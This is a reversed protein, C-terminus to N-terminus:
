LSRQLHQLLACMCQRQRTILLQQQQQSRRRAATHQAAMAALCQQWTGTCPCILRQQSPPPLCPFLRLHQQQMLLTGPTMQTMTQVTKMTRQQLQQQHRPQSNHQQQLLLLITSNSPHRCRGSSSSCPSPQSNSSCM